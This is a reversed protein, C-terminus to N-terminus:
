PFTIPVTLVRMTTAYVPGLLTRRSSLGQPVYDNMRDFDEHENQSRPKLHRTALLRKHSLSRHWVTWRPQHGLGGQGGSPQESYM